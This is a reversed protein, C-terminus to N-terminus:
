PTIERWQVVWGCDVYEVETALNILRNISWDQRYEQNHHYDAASQPDMHLSVFYGGHTNEELLLWECDPNEFQIFDEAADQGFDSSAHERFLKLARIRM